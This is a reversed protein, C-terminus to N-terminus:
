SGPGREYFLAIAKKAINPDVGFRRAILTNATRDVDMGVAEAAIKHYVPTAPPDRFEVELPLAAVTQLRQSCRAM